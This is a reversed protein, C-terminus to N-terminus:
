ARAAPCGGHPLAREHAGHLEVDPRVPRAARARDGGAPDERAQRVPAVSRVRARAPGRLAPDLHHGPAAARPRSRSGGARAPRAGAGGGLPRDARQGARASLGGRIGQPRRPPRLDFARAGCRAGPSRRRRARVLEGGTARRCPDRAGARRLPPVGRRGRDAADRAVHPPLAEGCSGGGATAAAGDPRAAHRLARRGRPEREGDARGRRLGPGATAGYRCLKYQQDISVIQQIVRTQTGHSPM